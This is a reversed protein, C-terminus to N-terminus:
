RLDARGDSSSQGAFYALVAEQRYGFIRKLQYSVLPFALDGLPSLPLRYLVEDRIRTGGDRSEFAHTHVWQSYPGRRQMDQFSYPPDWGTIETKWNFPIGMLRLRYDILTGKRIVIPEPNLISFKLEPPTIRELNVAESFFAFVEDIPRDIWQSTKLHHQMIFQSRPM